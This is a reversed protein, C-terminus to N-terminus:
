TRSLCTVSDACKRMVAQTGWLRTRMQISNRRVNQSSRYPALPRPRPDTIHTHANTAPRSPASACACPRVLVAVVLRVAEITKTSTIKVAHTAAIEANITNGLTKAGVYVFGGAIYAFFSEVRKVVWAPPQFHFLEEPLKGEEIKAPLWNGWELSRQIAYAHQEAESMTQLQIQTLAGPDVGAARPAVTSRARVTDVALDRGTVSVNAILRYAKLAHVVIPRLICFWILSLLWLFGVARLPPPDTSDRVVSDLFDM